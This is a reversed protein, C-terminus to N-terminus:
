DSAEVLAVLEEPADELFKMGVRFMGGEVATCYRVECATQLIHEGLAIEMTIQAGPPMQQFMEVAVGGRSVDLTRGVNFGGDPELFRPDTATLHMAQIRTHKRREDM